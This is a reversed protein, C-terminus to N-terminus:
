IGTRFTLAHQSSDHARNFYSRLALSISVFLEGAAGVKINEEFHTMGAEYVHLPTSANEDSDALDGLAERMEDMSFPDGADREVNYSRGSVNRAQRIVHHLIRRYKSDQAVQRIISVGTPMSYAHLHDRSPGEQVSQAITSGDPTRFRSPTDISRAADSGSYGSHERPASRVHDSSEQEQVHLAITSGHTPLLGSPGEFLTAADGTDGSEDSPTSKQVLLNQANPSRHLWSVATIDEMSMLEDVAWRDDLLIRYIQKDAKGNEIKLFRALFAPLETQYCSLLLEEDIPAVVRLGDPSPTIQILARDSKAELVDDGSRVVLKTWMDSSESVEANLLMNHLEDDRQQFASSKHSIACCSLAFARSRLHRTLKDQRTSTGVITEATVARSLYREPAIKLVELLPLLISLDSYAFDLLKLRAAFVKGYREHDVVFYNGSLKELCTVDGCRVPVFKIQRLDRIEASRPDLEEANRGMLQATTLMIERIRDM